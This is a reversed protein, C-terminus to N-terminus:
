SKAIPLAAIRQRAQDAWKSSGYHTVLDEYAKRARALQGSKTPGGPKSPTETLTAAQKELLQGGLWLGEAADPATPYFAAVKLYADIAGDLGKAQQIKGNLFLARARANNPASPSRAVEALLPMAQDLSGGAVLGEALGLNAETVKSSRPYNKKLQTFDATADAMKGAAMALQGQGCLVIAQAEQVDAPAQAPTAGAPLPYDHALKGFVAAAAAPDAKMLERTYLDMDAPSYVTAPDYAARMDVLAKAPDTEATMSAMRFLIRSRAAPKDKYKDALAQFYEGVQPATKEKADVLLRQCDLLTQLGLATAPADPYAALQQECAAVSKAVDANWVDRQAAGLVVYAGLKRAARLWLDSIHALAEAAHPSEPQAALFKQYTAAAADNDGTQLQVSAIRQYAAYAQGDQPYKAIFDTLVRAMDDFKKDTLYINAAQFYASRGESSQPFRTSLDTLTTLAQDRAGAAEQSSALTSLATPLLKSKPYQAAFAQLITVAGGPNGNKATAYGVWFAAQEAQPLDKYTDRVKTFAALANPLDGKDMLIRARSLEASAALERKPNGKLFQDLTGLAEDYHGQSAAATAQELLASERLRSKPYLRNFDDLYHLARAADPKPGGQFLGAIVLPLNEALPDGSFKAQFKDYAAVAQATQNQAAYTLPIYYLALKQDEPKAAEPLLASMLVRTADYQELYYFAAGSKLRATLVPDEKAQLTGLKGAERLRAQDLQRIAARNAAAGKRREAILAQNIRDVRATQAAIMPGKPEVAQYAALAEHYLKAQASAPAAAAHATLTEGLQFQADNTLSIDTNKAIIDRLSKEANEYGQLAAARGAADIKEDGLSLNAQTAVSIALLFESDLISESNPFSTLNRTLDRIAGSYDAMQYEAVSKGYLAMEISPSKPFKSIFTDYEKVAEAYGRNRDTEPAVAAQQALVQPLLLAADEQIDPSANPASVLKRLLDAAPQFQATLFDAYALHFQAPIAFESNPYAKLLSEYAAAADKYQRHDFLADAQDSVAQIPDTAQAHLSAAAASVALLFITFRRPASYPLRAFFRRIM